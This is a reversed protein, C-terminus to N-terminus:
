LTVLPYQYLAYTGVIIDLYQRSLSVYKSVMDMTPGQPLCGTKSSAAMEAEYKEAWDSPAAQVLAVEVLFLGSNEDVDIETPISRILAAAGRPGISPCQFSPYPDEGHEFYVHYTLPLEYKVPGKGILAKVEWTNSARAQVADIRDTPFPPLDELAVHPRFWARQRFVLPWNSEQNNEM